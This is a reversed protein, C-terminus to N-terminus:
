GELPDSSCDMIRHTVPQGQFTVRVYAEEEEEEGNEAEAVGREVGKGGVEGDQRDVPLGDGSPIDGDGDAGELRRRAGGAGTAGGGGADNGGGEPLDITPGAEVAGSAGAGAAADERLARGTGGSNSPKSWLEFAVHSAYPPWRCDYAGLAALLPAVM